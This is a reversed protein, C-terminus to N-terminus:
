PGMFPGRCSHVVFAATRSSHHRITFRAVVGSTVVVVVRGLTYRSLLLLAPRVVWVFIFVDAEKRSLIQHGKFIFLFIIIVKFTSSFM